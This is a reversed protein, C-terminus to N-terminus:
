EELMDLFTDGLPDDNAEGSIGRSFEDQGPLGYRMVYAFIVEYGFRLKLTEPPLCQSNWIEQPYIPVNVVSLSLSLITFHTMTNISIIAISQDSDRIDYAPLVNGTSRLLAMQLKGKTKDSQNFVLM